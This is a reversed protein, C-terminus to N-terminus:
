VEDRVWCVFLFILFKAIIAAILGNKNSKNNDNQNQNNNSGGSNNNENIMFGGRANYGKIGKGKEYRKLTCHSQM